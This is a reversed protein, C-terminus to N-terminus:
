ADNTTSIHRPVANKGSDGVPRFNNEDVKRGAQIKRKFPRVSIEHNGDHRLTYM